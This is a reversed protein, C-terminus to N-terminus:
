VGPNQKNTAPCSMYEVIKSVMGEFELVWVGYMKKTTNKLVFIFYKAFVSLGASGTIYTYSRPHHVM